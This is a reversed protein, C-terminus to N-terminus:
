NGAACSWRQAANRKWEAAQEPQRADSFAQVLEASSQCLDAKVRPCDPNLQWGGGQPVFACSADPMKQYLDRIAALTAPQFRDLQARAELTVAAMPLNRMANYAIVLGDYADPANPSLGRGYRLAEVAEPYKSLNMYDNALNFYLQAFAARATLPRGHSLQEDDYAKEQARSIERAKLLVALSKSYEGKVSYYIGLFTPPFESSREPPLPKVIEWSKEEEQIARDINRQADQEFLAKALMDHLRFSRPTTEVDASALALDDKWDPNRALTRGACLVLLAILAAKAYQESKLRYLLAVAAVAFAVSPLYLFREAMVAGIPFILNATPLLAIGFFGAAWFLVRDQRRRLVAIALIATVVLLSIWVWPDAWGALPIQDFSRDCSLGLPCLLLWLDLGIVKLATWRAVWFDAGRLPNDLYVPQAVPLGGLVAHRVLVLVVLSAAVAAYDRWRQRVGAIGERFTLDVLLMLGLLVAANEKAFVGLTAIVFLCATSSWGSRSPQVVRGVGVDGGRSVIWEGPRRAYLLLGGLVSMAALLDARGVISAVAETGIPHVAWLAAAFFAPGPRRLLLLALEYLLWVNVAHLLFNVAHYGAANPGNGLVAYNFLLSLTTVPRYLGDGAKPWWYNKELILKLNEGSVAQLRADQTVVAKSDQALGLGFSNAYAALAILLLAARARWKSFPIPANESSRPRTLGAM